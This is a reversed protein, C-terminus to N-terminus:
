LIDLLGTGGGGTLTPTNARYNIDVSVKSNWPLLEKDAVIGLAVAAFARARATLQSDGLMDVLPDVSRSDGIFGLAQAVSAQTALSKADRLMRTLEPVTQKDGLLGLAIAAQKLLEPRYKSKQVITQIKEISGRSDMLGLAIAIHGRAEDDSIQALKDELLPISEQDKRLGAGIAYAGINGPATIREAAARIAQSMNASMPEGNVTLEHGFVGLSLAAWAKARGGKAMQRGLHRRTATLVKEDYQGHPANTDGPKGSARALAILSFFKTQQNPDSIGELLAKHIKADIGDGDCNGIQGLALMASQRLQHPHKSSNKGVYKLLARATEERLEETSGRLLLAISRPAQARLLDHGNRDSLLDLLYNIQQTRSRSPHKADPTEEGAQLAQQNEIPVLGMAIIAAVKVDRTSLKPESLIQALTTVIRERDATNAKHGVLGLGYIAFARTRFSVENKRGVLRRGEDDDLALHKLTPISKPNALIGLATAATERVEQVSDSLFTAILAEFESRGELDQADGIKALAIMTGTLIDNNKETKLAHILAPVIKERITAESTRRTDRAEKAEGHGLFFVDSGTETYDHLKTKLNLYPDKNFGWWFQWNTIDVGGTSPGGTTPNTRGGGGAPAGPAGPGPTTPGSGGPAGPGAPGPSVPAGGGGGGGGGPPVTDGPGRYTGGHGISINQLSFAGGILLAGILLEQKMPIRTSQPENKRM